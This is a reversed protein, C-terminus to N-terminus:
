REVSPPAEVTETVDSAPEGDGAAARQRRAVRVAAVVSGAILLVTLGVVWWTNSTPGDCDCPAEVGVTGLGSVLVLNIPM